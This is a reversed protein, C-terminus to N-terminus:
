VKGHRFTMECGNKKRSKPKNEEFRFSFFISEVGLARMAYKWIPRSPQM